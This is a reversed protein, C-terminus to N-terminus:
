LSVNYFRQYFRLNQRVPAFTVSTLNRNWVQSPTEGVLTPRLIQGSITSAFNSDALYALNRTKEDLVAVGVILGKVYRANPDASTNQSFAIPTCPSSTGGNVFFNRYAPPTQAISGNDLVFSIHLRFVGSVLVQWNMSTEDNRGIVPPPGNSLDWPVRTNGTGFLDWLNYSAYSGISQTSYTFRGDARGLSAISQSTTTGPVTQNFLTIKYGVYASRTDTTWGSSTTTPGRARSTTAFAIASNGSTGASSYNLATAGNKLIASALDNGFRDLAIRAMSSADLQKNSRAITATTGSLMQM